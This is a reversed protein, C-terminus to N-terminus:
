LLSCSANAYGHGIIKEGAYEENIKDMWQQTYSLYNHKFIGFDKTLIKKLAPQILEDAIAFVIEVPLASFYNDTAFNMILLLTFLCNKYHLISGYSNVLVQQNIETTYESLAHVPFKIITTNDQLALALQELTSLNMLCTPVQLGTLGKNNRILKVIEQTFDQKWCSGGLVLTDMVYNNSLAIQLERVSTFGFTNNRISFRKLYSNKNLAQFIKTMGTNGIGTNDINLAAIPANSELLRALYYAGPDGLTNSSLRLRLPKTYNLLFDFIMHLGDADFSNDALNLNNIGQNRYCAKFIEQLGYNDIDNFEVSFAELSTNQQIGQALVLAGAQALSNNALDLTKLTCNHKLMAAIPTIDEADLYSDNLVLKTVRWSIVGILNEVRQKNLGARKFSIEQITECTQLKDIVLDIDLKNIDGKTLRKKEILNKELCEILIQQDIPFFQNLMCLGLELDIQVSWRNLYWRALSYLFPDERLPETLLLKFNERM